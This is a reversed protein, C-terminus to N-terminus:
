LHLPLPELASRFLFLAVELRNQLALRLLACRRPAAGRHPVGDTAAELAQASHATFPDGLAAIPNVGEALADGGPHRLGTRGTTGAPGRGWVKGDILERRGRLGFGPRM